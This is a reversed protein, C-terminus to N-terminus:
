YGTTRSITRVEFRPMGTERAKRKPSPGRIKTHTHTHKQYEHREGGWRRLIHGVAAKGLDVEKAVLGVLYGSKSRPLFLSPPHTQRHTQTDQPIEPARKSPLHHRKLKIHSEQGYAPNTNATGKPDTKIGMISVEDGGRGGRGTRGHAPRCRGRSRRSRRSLLGSPSTGPASWAATCPGRRTFGVPFDTAASPRMFSGSCFPFRPPPLCRASDRTCRTQYLIHFPRKRKKEHPPPPLSCRQEFALGTMAITMMTTTAVVVAAVPAATLVRGM